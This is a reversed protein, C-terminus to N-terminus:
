YYRRYTYYHRHHRAEHNRLAQVGTGLAAGIAAGALPNHRDVVAGAVAGIAAGRANSYHHRYTSYTSYTRYHRHHRTYAFASAAPMMLASSLVIAKIKMGLSSTM